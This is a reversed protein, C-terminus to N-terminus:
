PLETYRQGGALDAQGKGSALEAYIKGDAIEAIYTNAEAEWIANKDSDLLQSGDNRPRKFCKWWVFAVVAIALLIGLGAGV